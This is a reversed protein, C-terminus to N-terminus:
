VKAVVKKKVNTEFAAMVLKLADEIIANLEGIDFNDILYDFTVENKLGCHIITYMTVLKGLENEDQLIKIIPKDIAVEIALLQRNSYELTFEKDEIKIVM